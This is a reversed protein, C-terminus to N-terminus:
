RDSRDEPKLLWQCKEPDFGRRICEEKTMTEGIRLPVGFKDATLKINKKKKKAENILEDIGKKFNNEDEKTISM